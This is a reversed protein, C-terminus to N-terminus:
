SRLSRAPYQWVCIRSGGRHSARTPSRRRVWRSAEMTPRCADTLSCKSARRDSCGAREEWFLCMRFCAARFLSVISARARGPAQALNLRNSEAVGWHFKASVVQPPIGDVLDEVARRIVAEAKIIGDAGIEFEYGQTCNRDAIAELEIAAQGEYNVVNRLGLLSSVADFLRGM